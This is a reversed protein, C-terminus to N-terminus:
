KLIKFACNLKSDKMNLQTAEEVCDLIRKLENPKYDTVIKRTDMTVTCSGKEGYSFDVHLGEIHALNVETGKNRQHPTNIIYSWSVSSISSEPEAHHTYFLVKHLMIGEGEDTDLLSAQPDLVPIYTSIFHDFSASLPTTSLLFLTPLIISQKLKM